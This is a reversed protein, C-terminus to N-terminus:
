RPLEDAPELASMIERELRRAERERRLQAAYALLDELVLLRRQLDAIAYRTSMGTMMGDVPASRMHWFDSPQV